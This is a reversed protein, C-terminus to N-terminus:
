ESFNRRNPLNNEIIFKDVAKAAEIEEKFSGVNTHKGEKSVYARWNKNLNNWCVGRYKSSTGSVKDTNLIQESRTSWKCNTKCYGLSNDIRDIELGDEHSDKMDKYFNEFLKWDEDIGVTSYYDYNKHNPNTCREKMGRWSTYIRTGHMGHKTAREKSRERSLCGCSKVLGRTLCSGNVEKLVGCDCKVKWNSSGVYEVISLRNFKLGTLDKFAPM